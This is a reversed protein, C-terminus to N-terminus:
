NSFQAKLTSWTFNISDNSPSKTDVWRAISWQNLQNPVITLRMTGAVVKPISASTHPVRLIYDAVYLASDPVRIEFRGSSLQLSSHSGVSLKTAMSYFAQRENQVGWNRFVEPSSALAESSADFHFAQRAGSSTDALCRVFNETNAEQVALQFNSLVVLESTPQQFSNTSGSPDEPDRTNFLSCAQLTLLLCGLFYLM